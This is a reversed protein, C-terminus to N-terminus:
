DHLNFVVPVVMRFTVVQGHRRGPEFRWKLVGSMAAAEFVAATSRVVRPDLVKGSEDVTFEVVVTGHLGERRAEPPYTPSPQIRARPSSDLWAQPVIQPGRPGVPGPNTPIRFVPANPDIEVEPVHTVLMTIDTPKPATPSDLRRPPPPERVEKADDGEPVRIIEAPDAPEPPLKFEVLDIVPDVVTKVPIKPTSGPFGLFLAAHSTAAFTAALVFDRNM